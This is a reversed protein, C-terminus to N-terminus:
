KAGKAFLVVKITKLIIHLDLIPSLNKIYFLDYELKRLGDEVTAGHPYNVQAWGTVGPRVVHRLNFYPIEKEFIRVEEPILARPGVFSMDGRLVNWLQPIEDIRTKRLFKGIKTIRPDDEYGAFRRDNEKGEVMTRFKYCTFERGYQGVRKQAFIIRGPSDLKILICALLAIPISLILGFLSFIVDLFRKIRRNYLSRKVGSIPTSVFWFDDVHEVPIKGFREECYSPMDYVTIGKLKTNLVNKLLEPCKIHTIAIIIKNVNYKNTVDELIECGGLVVPSNHKGHLSKDDDLFGVVEIDPVNALMSYLTKGAKGAGVILIREHGNIFKKFLHTFFYRWLYILIFSFVSSLVFVSRGSKFFNPFFFYILAEFVEAIGFVFLFKIFVQINKYRLKTSYLDFLFFFFPVLFLSFTFWGEKEIIDLPSQNLRLSFALVQATAIAFIDGLFLAVGKKPIVKFIM